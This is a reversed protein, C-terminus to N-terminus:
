YQKERDFMGKVEDLVSGLEEEDNFGEVFIWPESHVSTYDLLIKLKHTDTQCRVMIEEWLRPSSINYNVALDLIPRLDPVQNILTDIAAEMNGAKIQLFACEVFL